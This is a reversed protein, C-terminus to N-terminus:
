IGNVIHIYFICKRTKNIRGGRQHLLSSFLRIRLASRNVENFINYIVINYVCLISYQIIM